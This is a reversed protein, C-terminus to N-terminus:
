PLFPTLGQPPATLTARQLSPPRNKLKLPPKAAHTRFIVHSFVIKVTQSSDFSCALALIDVTSNLRWKQQMPGVPDSGWFTPMQGCRPLAPPACLSLVYPVNRTRDQPACESILFSITGWAWISKQFCLKIHDASKPITKHTWLSSNHGWTVGTVKGSQMIVNPITSLRSSRASALTSSNLM